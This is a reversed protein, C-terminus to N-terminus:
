FHCAICEDSGEEPVTCDVGLSKGRLVKTVTDIISPDPYGGSLIEDLWQPLLKSHDRNQREDRGFVANIQHALKTLNLCTQAISNM